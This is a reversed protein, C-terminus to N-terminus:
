IPPLPLIPNSEANQVSPVMGRLLSLFHTMCKEEDRCWVQHIIWEGPQWQHGDPNDIYQLLCFRPSSDATM